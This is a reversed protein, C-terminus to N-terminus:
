KKPASPAKHEVCLVSNLLQYSQGDAEMLLGFNFFSELYNPDVTMAREYAAVADGKHGLHALVNGLNTQVEANHPSHFVAKRLLDLAEEALGTQFAAIGALNLAESDTPDASLVDRCLDFALYPDGQELAAVARSLRNTPVVFQREPDRPSLTAEEKFRGLQPNSRIRAKSQPKPKLRRKLRPARRKGKKVKKM